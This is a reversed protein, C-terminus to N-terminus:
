LPVEEAEEYIDYACNGCYIYKGNTVASMFPMTMHCRYCSVMLSGVQQYEIAKFGPIKQKDTKIVKKATKNRLRAWAGNLIM